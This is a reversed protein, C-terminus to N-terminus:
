KINNKLKLYKNKYKLYKQDVVELTSTHRTIEKYKKIAIILSILAKKQISLNNFGEILGNRLLKKAKKIGYILIIDRISYIPRFLEYNAQKNKVPNVVYKEQDYDSIKDLELIISLSLIKIKKM